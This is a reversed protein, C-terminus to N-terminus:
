LAEVKSCYDRYKQDTPHSKVLDRAWYKATAIDNTQQYSRAMCYVVCGQQVKDFVFFGYVSAWQFLRLAGVFEQHRFLVLGEKYKATVEQLTQQGYSSVIFRQQLVDYSPCQTLSYSGAPIEKATKSTDLQEKDGLPMSIPDALYGCQLRNQADGVMFRGILVYDEPVGRVGTATTFTKLAISPIEIECVVIIGTDELNAGTNVKTLTKFWGPKNISLQALRTYSMAVGLDCGNDEQADKFVVKGGGVFSVSVEPYVPIPSQSKNDRFPGFIHAVPANGLPYAVAEFIDHPLPGTSTTDFDATPLDVEELKNGKATNHTVISSYTFSESSSELEVEELTEYVPADKSLTPPM